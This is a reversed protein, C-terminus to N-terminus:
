RRQFDPSGLLLGAMLRLNAGQMQPVNNRAAANPDNLQNLITDHTQKAVEGDLLTSEFRALAGAADSPSQAQNLIADPTWKIGNLRGAALALAFNMRSLLAASNVWAEAKSSYGTPPQMAYLPMGLKQLQGNLAQPNDVEAGSARVASVVFELPTKVKARYADPSWFEPSNYMTRLVERIDGDTHKFTNAMRSVLSEPPNDSVFRIALKKSIFHATSPHHALMELADVGEKEGHDKFKKGLVVKTGPEHRRDDFTFGGGQQPKDITWGTLVKALETVDKQTYGGDVGLTHLEMVERAYNENLGSARKKQQPNPQNPRRQRPPDYVIMGFPGRRMRGPRYNRNPNKGGYKAFDSEPGISQWNDLYFLMAPSKATALLLDKFKGLARPRIVDREYSTLMYRDPGKNIFINFHNMWFDTMVEDLQRESYVARLLKAQTLEGQVVAAPNNIAVLTEKQQPTLGQAMREREEPTLSKTLAGMDDPSMKILDKFRQDSPENMLTDASLEAYMRSELNANRRKGGNDNPDGSSQANAADQKAQKQRQKDLAAQYIAKEQPDRPVSMRGNEVAKIVEPPPFNRVLEQTDMKLTRYQSLRAELQSDDIKEPHLQQEFWRDIGETEVRQVEGPRPGFTFRNLVHLARKQEDMQQMAAAAKSKKKSRDSAILTVASTVTIILLLLPVLKRDSRM